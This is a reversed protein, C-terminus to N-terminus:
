KHATPINKINGFKLKIFPIITLWHEDMGFGFVSNAFACALAIALRLFGAPSFIKPLENYKGFNFYLTSSPKPDPPPGM